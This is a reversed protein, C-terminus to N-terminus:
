KKSIKVQTGLDKMRALALERLNGHEVGSSVLPMPIDRFFLPFDWNKFLQILLSNVLFCWQAWIGIKNFGWIRQIRFNALNRQNWPKQNSQFYFVVSLLPSFIFPFAASFHFHSSKLLNIKQNLKLSFIGSYLDKFIRFFTPNKKEWKKVQSDPPFFVFPDDLHEEDDASPSIPFNQPFDM